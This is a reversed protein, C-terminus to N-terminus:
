SLVYRMEKATRSASNFMNRDGNWRENIDKLVVDARKYLEDLNRSSRLYENMGRIGTDAFKGGAGLEHGARKEQEESKGRAQEYEGAIWGDLYKDPNYGQATPKIDWSPVVRCDCFPHAHSATEASHYVFGRSALMMCFPCTGEIALEENHTVGPEKSWPKYITATGTPIRAWKPKKPDKRANYAVCENAAKRTEYDIREVCRNIFEERPKEDVLIQVFARVSESTAIPNRRSDAVAVYATELIFNARLGNYFDAALRAAVQTSANCAPQMVAIVANRIEEIDANYNIQSLANVLKQRAQESVVNLAKSYNEIYNRPIQM